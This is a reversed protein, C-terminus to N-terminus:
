VEEVDEEEPVQLIMWVEGVKEVNLYLELMDQSFEGEVKLTALPLKLLCDLLLEDVTVGQIPEASNENIEQGYILVQADLDLDAWLEPVDDNPEPDYFTVLLWADDPHKLTIDPSLKADLALDAAYEGYVMDVTKGGSGCGVLCLIM